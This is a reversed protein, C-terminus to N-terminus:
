LKRGPLCKKYCECYDKLFGDCQKNNYTTLKTLGKYYIYQQHYNNREWILWM